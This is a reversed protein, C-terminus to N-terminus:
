VLWKLSDDDLNQGLGFGFADAWTENRFEDFAWGLEGPFIIVLGRGPADAFVDRGIRQWRANRNGDFALLWAVHNAGWRAILYRLLLATQDEPLEEVTQGDIERLPAIVNLLGAHDLAEIKADLN